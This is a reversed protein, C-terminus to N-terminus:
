IRIYSYLALLSFLEVFTHSTHCMIRERPSIDISRTTPRMHSFSSSLSLHDLLLSYLFFFLEREILRMQVNSSTKVALYNGWMSFHVYQREVGTTSWKLSSSIHFLFIPDYSPQNFYTVAVNKRMLCDIWRTERELSSFIKTLESWDLVIFNRQILIKNLFNLHFSYESINELSM